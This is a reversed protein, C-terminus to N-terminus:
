PGPSVIVTLIILPEADIVLVILKGAPHTNTPGFGILMRGSLVPIKVTVDNPVVSASQTAAYATWVYHV